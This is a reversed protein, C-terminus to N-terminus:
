LSGMLWSGTHELVYDLENARLLQNQGGTQSTAVIRRFGAIRQTYAFNQLTASSPEARLVDSAPSDVIRVEDGLGTSRVSIEESGSVSVVYGDGQLTASKPTLDVQDQSGVGVLEVTDSGLGGEFRISTVEATPFEQTEGNLTVIHTTVGAQFRFDNSSNSGRAVVHSGQREIQASVQPPAADQVNGAQVQANAEIQSVTQNWAASGPPQTSAALLRTYVFQPRLGVERFHLDRQAGNATVQVAIENDGGDIMSAPQRQVVQYQGPAVDRFEYWGHQDTWSEAVVSGANGILQIKVGPVGEGVDPQTNNNTDAFVVGALLGFESGPPPVDESFFRVLGDTEDAGPQPEPDVVILDENLRVFTLDLATTQGPAVTAATRFTINLLSGAGADLEDARFVWAVITGSADDVNAVVEVGSAGWISGAQISSDDADLLTTDYSLHIEAGRLGLGDSINVPATFQVAVTPVDLEPIEVTVVPAEGAALIHSLVCRTELREFGMRRRSRAM